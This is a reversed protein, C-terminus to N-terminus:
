WGGSAGGGGGSGGGFGGFGGGGSSGGGWGGGSSRGGGGSLLSTWFLTELLGNSRGRSVMGGGGRGGRFIIIIIVVIIILFIGLGNGGKGDDNNRSRREKYEGTAAKSLNDVANNFGGYYNHMKFAPKLDNEIIDKSAVDTVAGELGYGVEIRIKKEELAILILIGNNHKKGGIGWDRLTALSVDELAEGNLSPVTVIAIQNSTNQDLDVLKKELQKRDYENLLHANDVVLSPPNPMPISKQAFATACCFFSIILLIQKM